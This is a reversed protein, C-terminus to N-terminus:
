RGLQRAYAYRGCAAHRERCVLGWREPRLQRGAPLRDSRVVCGAERGNGGAWRGCGGLQRQDYLQFGQHQGHQGNPHSSNGGGVASYSGGFSLSTIVANDRIVSGKVVLGTGSCYIGGGRSSSNRLIESDQVVVTGSAYVGGGVNDSIICSEITVPGGLSAAAALSSQNGSITCREVTLSGGDVYITAGEGQNDHIFCDYVRVHANDGAIAGSRYSLSDSGVPSNGTIVCNRVTVTSGEIAIIPSGYAAGTVTVGALESGAPAAVFGVGFEADSVDIVTAAVVTPDAPGTSQLLLLKEHVAIDVNGPDSYIGPRLIIVAGERAPAADVAAQVTRKPGSAGDWAPTLGDWADDGAAPDVYYTPAPTLPDSGRHFEGLNDVDDGDPDDTPAAGAPGFWKMEWWDPLMDGDTDHWEDAGIDVRGGSVRDEGDMDKELGQPSYAPDGADICPSDGKLHGDPTLMPDGELNGEGPQGSGLCYAVDYERPGYADDLVGGYAYGAFLCNRVKPSHDHVYVAGESDRDALFTCNMIVPQNDYSYVDYPRNLRFVCDRIIPAGGECYIVGRTAFCDSIICHEITPSTGACLVAGATSYTGYVPGFGNTITVGRIACDPGEGNQLTFARHRDSHSGECDIVTGAVAAPDTPDTSRVTITKGKFDIDRNGDGTYTGPQLVVEDGAAAADVAAQITPYDGLGDAQVNLVAAHATTALCAATVIWAVTTTRM